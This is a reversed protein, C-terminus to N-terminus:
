VTGSTSSGVGSWTALKEKGGAVLVNQLLEAADADNLKQLLRPLVREAVWRQNATDLSLFDRVVKDPPENPTNSSM